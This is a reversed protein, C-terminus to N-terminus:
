NENQLKNDRSNFLIRLTPNQLNKVNKKEERVKWISPFENKRLASRSAQYVNNAYDNVSIAVAWVVVDINSLTGFNEHYRRRSNAAAYHSYHM